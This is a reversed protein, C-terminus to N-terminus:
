LLETKEARFEQKVHFTVLAVLDIFYKKQLMKPADGNTQAYKVDGLLTVDDIIDHVTGESM